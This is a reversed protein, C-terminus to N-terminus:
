VSPYYTTAGGILGHHTYVANVDTDGYNTIKVQLNDIPMSAPIQLAVQQYGYNQYVNVGGVILEVYLLVNAYCSVYADFLHHVQGLLNITTTTSSGATITTNFLACALSQERRIVPVVSADVNQTYDERGNGTTSITQTSILTQAM